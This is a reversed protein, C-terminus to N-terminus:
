RFFRLIINLAVTLIASLVICSMLPFYFSWREGSVQIDGPLRGIPLGIRSGLWLLLGVVAVLLGFGFLWKGFNGVDM